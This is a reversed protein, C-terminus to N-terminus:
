MAYARKILKLFTYCQQLSFMDNTYIIVCLWWLTLLVEGYIYNFSAYYVCNVCM